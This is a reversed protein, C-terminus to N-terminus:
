RNQDLQSVKQILLRNATSTREDGMGAMECDSSPTLIFVIPKDDNCSRIETIRERLYGDDEVKSETVCILIM